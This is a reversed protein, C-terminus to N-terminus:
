IGTFFFAAALFAGALFAGALFAATFFGAALFATALFAGALFFFYGAMRKSRIAFDFQSFSWGAEGM